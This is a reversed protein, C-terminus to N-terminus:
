DEKLTKRLYFKRCSAIYTVNKSSPSDALLFVWLQYEEGFIILIVLDPPM